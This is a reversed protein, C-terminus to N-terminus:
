GRAAVAARRRQVPTAHSASPQAADSPGFTLWGARVGCLRAIEAMRDCGPDVGMDWRMVTSVAVGFYTAVERMSLGAAERSLKIRKGRELAQMGAPKASSASGARFRTGM